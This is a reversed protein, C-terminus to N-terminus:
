ESAARSIHESRVAQYIRLFVVAVQLVRQNIGPAWKKIDLFALFFFRLLLFVKIIFM